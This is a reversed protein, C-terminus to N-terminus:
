AAGASAVAGFHVDGAAIKVTRRRRRPHRLPLGRRNDRIRRARRQRRRSGCGRRRARRRAVALAPPDRDLGRGGDWIAATRAGPTPCRWSCRKPTATRASRASRRRRIPFTTRSPRRCQRRHRDGARYPRRRAHRRNSCSAPSSRATPWFMTRGNSSSATAGRQRRWGARDRHPPEARRCRARRGAGTRRRLRANRCAQARLDDVLLLTAALNGEPTAWARGRRGRGSEQRKSVIWLKGPDGARARELALANTSGVSDHAELRYGESCSGDARAFLAM